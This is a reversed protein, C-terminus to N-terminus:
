KKFLKSVFKMKRCLFDTNYLHQRRWINRGAEPLHSHESFHHHLQSLHFKENRLFDIYQRWPRQKSRHFERQRRCILKLWETYLKVKKKNSSSLSFPSIVLKFLRDRELLVLPETSQSVNILCPKRWNSHSWNVSSYINWKTHLEVEKKSPSCSSISVQGGKKWGRLGVRSTRVQLKTNWLPYLSDARKM